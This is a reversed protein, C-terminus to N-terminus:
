SQHHRSNSQLYHGIHPSLCLATALSRVEIKLKQSQISKLRRKQSVDLAIPSFNNKYIIFPYKLHPPALKRPCQNPSIEGHELFNPTPNVLIVRLM